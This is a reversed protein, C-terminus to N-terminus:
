EGHGGYSHDMVDEDAEEIEWDGDDEESQSLTCWDYQGFGCTFGEINYLLSM